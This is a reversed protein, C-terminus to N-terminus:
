THYAAERPTGDTVQATAYRPLFLMLGAV